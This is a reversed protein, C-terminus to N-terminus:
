KAFVRRLAATAEEMAARGADVAGGMSFFPHVMGPYDSLVVDWPQELAEQLAQQTQVRQRSVDYGGRRLALEVLEADTESDEVLLVRLRNGMAM